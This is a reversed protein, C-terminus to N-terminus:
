WLKEKYNFASPSNLAYSQFLPSSRSNCVLKKKCIYLRLLFLIHFKISAYWDLSHLNFLPLNANFCMSCTYRIYIYLVIGQNLHDKNKSFDDISSHQNNVNKMFRELANGSPTKQQKKSTPRSRQIVSIGPNQLMASPVLTVETTFPVNSQPFTTAFEQCFETDSMEVEDPRITNQPPPLYSKHHKEAIWNQQKVDKASSESDTSSVTNNNDSSKSLVFMKSRLSEIDEPLQSEEAESREITSSDAFGEDSLLEESVRRSEQRKNEIFNGSSISDFSLHHQFQTQKRFCNGDKGPPLYDNEISLSSRNGNTTLQSM